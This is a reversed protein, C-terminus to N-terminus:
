AEAVSVSTIDDISIPECAIYSGNGQVYMVLRGHESLRNDPYGRLQEGTKLTILIERTENIGSLGDHVLVPFRSWAWTWLTDQPDVKGAIDQWELEALRLDTRNAQKAWPILVEDIWKRRSKALQTFSQVPFHEM